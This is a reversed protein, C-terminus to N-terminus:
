KAELSRLIRDAAAKAEAAVTADSQLAEAMKLGKECPFRPLLGLVLKKEEPRTALALARELDAVAAEPQRYPELGVMRVFARLALVKYTLNDSKSAIGFVDDKASVDPWDALGRVAADLVEKNPDVLAKRMAPLATDDGIKGLVRLLDARRRPDKESALLNEAADGRALSRTITLAVSAVTNQMEERATEDDITFLLGILDRLDAPTCVDGLAQVAKLRLAPAGSGVIEVLAPKAAAIRRAGVAQILEAKIAADAEKALLDKVAADVDSGKLRSLVERALAQEDGAASAARAALMPVVSANGVKGISRLAEMRVAPVPSSAAKLISPLVVDAPYHALAAVLEVQGSEPLKELFPLVAPIESAEFTKPVLAIAPEYLVADKGSLARLVFGGDDVGGAATVRGRFAAQREIDPLGAALLKDYLVAAGNPDGDKMLRDACLLLASGAAAKARGGSKALAAQLVCVADVTGIKGLAGIADLATEADKGTALPELALVAAASARAGITSIIGRRVDGQTKDLAGLLTRDVEDGPIRELAYRAPDTTEPKLLMAGLVPVSAAGGILRLSRCAAMVGGPAPNSQLFALLKAECEKRQAPDDKHAQVYARLRMLAGVGEDYKYDALDKLIEDLSDYTLGMSRNVQGSQLAMGAAAEAEARSGAAGAGSFAFTGLGVLVALGIGAAKLMSKPFRDRNKRM